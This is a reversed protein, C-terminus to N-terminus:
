ESLCKVNGDDVDKKVRTDLGLMRGKEREGRDWSVM